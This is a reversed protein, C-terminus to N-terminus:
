LTPTNTFPQTSQVPPRQEYSASAAAHTITIERLQDEAEKILADCWQRQSEPCVQRTRKYDAIKLQLMLRDPHEYLAM